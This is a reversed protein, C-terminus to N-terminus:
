DSGGQAPWASGWGQLPASQGERRVVHAWGTRSSCPWQSGIPRCLGTHLRDTPSRPSDPDMGIQHHNRESAAEGRETTFYTIVHPEAGGPWLILAPRQELRDPERRAAKNQALQSIRTYVLFYDFGAQPQSTQRDTGYPLDEAGWPPKPSPAGLGEITIPGLFQPQAGVDGIL